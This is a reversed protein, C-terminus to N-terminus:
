FWIKHAKQETSKKIIIYKKNRDPWIHTLNGLITVFIEDAKIGEIYLRYINYNFGIAIQTIVWLM